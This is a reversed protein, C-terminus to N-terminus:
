QGPVREAVIPVGNKSRVAASDWGLRTSIQGTPRDLLWVEGPGLSVQSPGAEGDPGTIAPTVQVQATEGSPNYVAVASRSWDAPATATDLRPSVSPQQGLALRLREERQDDDGDGETFIQLREVVLSGNRAQISAAVHDRRSVDDGVDIAIVKRAPVVLATWRVPKREGDATAFRGDVVVDSPFPNFLVLVDRVDRSTDGWAFNWQSQGHPACPGRASGQEGGVEHEAVVQGVESEVLAAALTEMDEGREGVAEALHVKAEEGVGVSFPVQADGSTEERDIFVTVDGSAPADGVNRVTVTHDAVGGLTGAACYWAPSATLGPTWVAPAGDNQGSRVADGEALGKAMMPTVLMGLAILVLLFPVRPGLRRRRPSPQRGPQQGDAVM